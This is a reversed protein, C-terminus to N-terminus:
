TCGLARLENARFLSVSKQGDHSSKGPKLTDNEGLSDEKGTKPFLVCQTKLKSGSGKTKGVLVAWPSM